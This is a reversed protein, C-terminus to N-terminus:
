EQYHSLFKPLGRQKWAKFYCRVYEELFNNHLGIEEPNLNSAYELVIQCFRAENGTPTWIPTRLFINIIVELLTSNIYFRPVELFKGLKNSSGVTYPMLIMFKLVVMKPYVVNKERANQSILSLKM